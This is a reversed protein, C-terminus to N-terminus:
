TYVIFLSAISEVTSDAMKDSTMSAIPLPSRAPKGSMIKKMLRAMAIRLWLKKRPKDKVTKIKAATAAAM